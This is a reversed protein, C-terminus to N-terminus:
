VFFGAEAFGAFFGRVNHQVHMPAANAYAADERKLDGFGFNGL